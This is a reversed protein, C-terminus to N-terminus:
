MVHPLHLIHIYMAEVERQQTQWPIELFFEASTRHSLSQFQTFHKQRCQAPM